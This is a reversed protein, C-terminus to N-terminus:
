RGGFVCGNCGLEQVQNTTQVQRPGPPAPQTSTSDAAQVVANVASSLQEVNINALTDSM